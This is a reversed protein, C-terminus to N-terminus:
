CVKFENELNLKNAFFADVLNQANLSLQGKMERLEDWSFYSFKDFKDEMIKPEGSIIVAKYWIYDMFFGDELFEQGGLKNVIKVAIGLEEDIEREATKVPDEGKEIKGGPMEWQIRKSTNRHLLLIKGETNQMVCGALRIKNDKKDKSIDKIEHDALKLFDRLNMKISKAHVGPNFSIIETNLFSSDIFPKLGIIVGIPYCAGIECGMTKKVEESTAFRLDKVKLLNKLKKSDLKRNGPLVALVFGDGAKLLLSKAGEKLSLGRVKAAQESTYVPEHEILEFAIKNAELLNIITQYPNQM